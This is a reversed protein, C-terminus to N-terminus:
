ITESGVWCSFGNGEELCKHHAGIREIEAIALHTRCRLKIEECMPFCMM